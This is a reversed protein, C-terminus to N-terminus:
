FPRWENRFVIWATSYRFHLATVTNQSVRYVNVCELFPYVLCPPSLETECDPRKLGPSLVGTIASLPDMFGIQCGLSIFPGLRVLDTTMKNVSINWCALRNM